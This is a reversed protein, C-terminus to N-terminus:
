WSVLQNILEKLINSSTNIYKWGRTQRNMESRLLYSSFGEETISINEGSKSLKNVRFQPCFLCLHKCVFMWRDMSRDTYSTGKNGAM